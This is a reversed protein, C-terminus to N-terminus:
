AGNTLEDTLGVVDLNELGAQAHHALVILDRLRGDRDRIHDRLLAEGTFGLSGFMDLVRDEDTALEIVVKSLGARFGERLAHQVLRRGVGAGRDKSDVVLRLEGVHDSWGPLRTMAAYGDIRGDENIDIWRMGPEQALRAASAPDTVDERLVTVDHESLGGFLLALADADEPTLPRITM